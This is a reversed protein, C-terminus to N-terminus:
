GASLCRHGYRLVKGLPEAYLTLDATVTPTIPLGSRYESEAHYGVLDVPTGYQVAAYAKAKRRKGLPCTNDSSYSNADCVQIFLMM